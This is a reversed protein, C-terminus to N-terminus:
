DTKRYKGLLMGRRGGRRGGRDGRGRKKMEVWRRKGRGGYMRERQWRKCMGEGGEGEGGGGKEGGERGGGEKEMEEEEGEM